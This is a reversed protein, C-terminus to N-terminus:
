FYNMLQWLSKLHRTTAGDMVKSQERVSNAIDPQSFKVLYLLMGVGSCYKGQENESLKMDGEQPRMIIERPVAPTSKKKVNELEYSFDKELRDILDGQYFLVKKERGTRLVKCDVYDHLEGVCKVQFMTALM